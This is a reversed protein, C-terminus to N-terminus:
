AAMRKRLVRELSFIRADNFVRALEKLRSFNIQGRSSFDFRMDHELYEEFQRETNLAKVKWLRDVLAKEPTAIIYARGADLEVRRLGQIYIDPTLHEYTFVGCPTEFYKKRGTTMSTVVAVREPILSYLSLAYDQSIYSPGYIMNALVLVSYSDAGKVYIGKKVREIQMSKLLQNIKVRPHKYAHLSYKLLNYDFENTLSDLLSNQRKM